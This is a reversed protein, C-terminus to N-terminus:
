SNSQYWLIEAAAGVGDGVGGGLASQWYSWFSSKLRGGSTVIIPPRAVRVKLIVRGPCNVGPSSVKLHGRGVLYLCASADVGRLWKRTPLHRTTPASPLTSTSGTLPLNSSVTLVVLGFRM